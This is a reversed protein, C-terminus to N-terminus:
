QIAAEISESLELIRDLRTLTLVRQLSPSVGALKLRKQHAKCTNTFEVLKGLSLSPLLQVGQLDLAIVQLSQDNMAEEIMRSLLSLEQEDLLKARVRAIIASATREIQVSPQGSTQSM